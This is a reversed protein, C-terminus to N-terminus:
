HLGKPRFSIEQYICPFISRGPFLGRKRRSLDDAHPTLARVGVGNKLVNYRKVSLGQGGDKEQARRTSDYREATTGASPNTMGNPRLHAWRSKEEVEFVM